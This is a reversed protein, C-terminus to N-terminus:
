TQIRHRETRTNSVHWISSGVLGSFIAFVTISAIYSVMRDVDVAMAVRYLPIGIIIALHIEVFIEVIVMLYGLMEVLKRHIQLRVGRAIKIEGLSGTMGLVAQHRMVPGDGLDALVAGLAPANGIAKARGITHRDIAVAGKKGAILFAVPCWLVADIEDLLATEVAVHTGIYGTSVRLFIIRWDYPNM